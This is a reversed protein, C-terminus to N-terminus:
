YYGAHFAYAVIRRIVASVGSLLLERLGNVDANKAARHIAEM